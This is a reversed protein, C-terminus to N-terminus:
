SMDEMSIIPGCWMAGRVLTSEGLGIGPRNDDILHLLARPPPGAFFRAVQQELEIKGNPIPQYPFVVAHMHAYLGPSSHIPKLRAALQPERENSLIGFILVQESAFAKESTFSLWDRLESASPVSAQDREMPSRILFSGVLGEVEAIVAFAAMDSGTLSLARAALASIGTAKTVADSPFRHLRHMRGEAVLCQITTLAPLYSEMPLLYDPRSKVDPPQYVVNGCVAIFDGANLDGGPTGSPIGGIGLACSDKGFSVMRMGEQRPAEWPTWAQVTRLRLGEGRDLSFTDPVATDSATEADGYIMVPPASCLWSGFGTTSLTQTVFANANFIGLSGGIAHLEKQIRILARIGASSLYDLDAADVLMRHEGKRIYEMFTETFHEAWSADLRGRAKIILDTGQRFSRIEM